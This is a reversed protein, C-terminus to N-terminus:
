RSQQWLRDGLARVANAGATGLLERAQSQAARWDDLVTALRQRGRPTLRVERLRTDAGDGALWGRALLPRLNRSVTSKEMQLMRGITAPPCPGAKGVFVLINVQAISLERAALARDYLASVARAVMRLRVALCADAIEDVVPDAESVGASNCICGLSDLHIPTASSAQLTV